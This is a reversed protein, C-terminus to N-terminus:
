DPGPGLFHLAAFHGSLETDVPSAAKNEQMIM